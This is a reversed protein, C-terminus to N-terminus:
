DLRTGIRGLERSWSIFRPQAIVRAMPVFGFSTMARSDLSNDRHDGLVFLQGEPVQYAPTNDFPQRDDLELVDFSVGDEGPLTETYRRLEIRFHPEAVTQPGILTRPAPEGNLHLRGERMEIRDGPLGILRKVWPTTDTEGRRFVIIEGRRFLKPVPDRLRTAWFTDGALLTPAMSNGTMTFNESRAPTAVAGLLLGILAAWWPRPPHFRRAAPQMLGTCDEAAAKGLGGPSPVPLDPRTDGCRVIRARFPLM